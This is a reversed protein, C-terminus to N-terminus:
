LGCIYIECIYKQDELVVGMSSCMGRQGFWSGSPSGFEKEFDMKEGCLIKQSVVMHEDMGSTGLSM